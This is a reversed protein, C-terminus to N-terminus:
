TVTVKQIIMVEPSPLLPKTEKTSPKLTVTSNFAKDAVGVLTMKMLPAVAEM